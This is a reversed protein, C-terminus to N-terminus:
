VAKLKLQEVLQALIGDPIDKLERGKLIAEFNKKIMEPKWKKVRAVDNFAVMFLNQFNEKGWDEDPRKEMAKVHEIAATVKPKIPTVGAECWKLLDKGTEATVTFEPKDMFLRTRDKGAIANHKIDLEFNLTLEYEWGDRQVEKLGVKTVRARGDAGQTMDYDQKKRVTTIVHCKSSLISQIFKNHRPTIKAWNTFSNGLMKSHVELLGGEGDWEHTVSDIIIVEMGAEECVKIAETYKEPTFPATLPLVNYEGLDSYLEGSGNESDILAIKNWDTMGSALLLASYTKGSGSPGAIGVRLKSKQKTAKRLVM